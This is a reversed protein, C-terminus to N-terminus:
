AKSSYLYECPIGRHNVTTFIVFLDCSVLFKKPASKKNTKPVKSNRGSIYFTKRKHCSLEM